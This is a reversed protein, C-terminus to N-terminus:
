KEQPGQNDYVPTYLMRYYARKAEGRSVPRRCLQSLVFALQDYVDLKM